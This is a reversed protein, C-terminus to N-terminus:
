RSSIASVPLYCREGNWEGDTLRVLAFPGESHLVLVSTGAPIPKIRGAASLGSLLEYEHNLEASVAFGVDIGRTGCFSPTLTAEQGPHPASASYMLVLCFVLIVIGIAFAAATQGQLGAFAPPHKPQNPLKQSM